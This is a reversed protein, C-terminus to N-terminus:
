VLESWDGVFFFYWHPFAWEDDMIEQVYFPVDSYCNMKDKGLRTSVVFFGPCNVISDDPNCFESTM